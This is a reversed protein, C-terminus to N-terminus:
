WMEGIPVGSSSKFFIKPYDSVAILPIKLEKALRELM